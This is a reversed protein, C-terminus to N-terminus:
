NEENNQEEERKEIGQFEKLNEILEKNQTEDILYITEKLLSIILDNDLKWYNLAIFDYLSNNEIAKILENEQETRM